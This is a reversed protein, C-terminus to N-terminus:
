PGDLKDFTTTNMIMYKQSDPTEFVMHKANTSRNVVRDVRKNRKDM